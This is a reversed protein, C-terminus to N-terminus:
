RRYTCLGIQTLGLRFGRLGIKKRLPELLMGICKNGNKGVYEQECTCDGKLFQWYGDSLCFYEPSVVASAHDVCQGEVNVPNTAAAPTRSFRAYGTTVAPCLKYYVQVSILSICAGTDQFALYIGTINGKLTLARTEYNLVPVDQYGYVHDATLKDILNYSTEDLTSMNGDAETYYLNFFEKCLQVSLPGTAPYCKRTTFSVKIYITRLGTVNIFPTRLWSESLVHVNCSGRRSFVPSRPKRGPGVCVSRYM